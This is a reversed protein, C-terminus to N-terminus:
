GLLEDELEKAFADDSDDESTEVNDGRVRKNTDPESEDPFERKRPNAEAEGYNNSNDEVNEAEEGENDEDDSSAMFDEVEKNIEDWDMKGDNLSRMFEGGNTEFEEEAEQEEKENARQQEQRISDFTIYRKMDNEEIKILFQDEPVRKWQKLCAFIWDTYVIKTNSGKNALAQNVKRTGAGTAIVHTVTDIYDAVVVAGFSRVWQVIDAQDLNTGLPLVGSFLFVCGKFVQRKLKSMVDKIDPNKILDDRSFLDNDYEEYFESHVKRLARDLNFLEDDDDTLIHRHHQSPTHEQQGSVPGNGFSNVREIEKTKQEENEKEEEQREMEELNKQLKALPRELQQAELSASREHSQANLLETNDEGGGMELLQDVPSVSEPDKSSEDDNSGSPREESDTGKSLSSPDIYTNEDIKKRPAIVGNRQPLFSSNIDGIGVFFNYPVVKILNSSWRWVDGRDDIITVMSTDVPFLRKLSKQILSGSEDRSLIRDGFFKGDPDIIRAISKAYAKTAMTYVHMEYLSSMSDLFERLGPRLKVYYWCIASIPRATQAGSPSKVLGVIEEELSFSKVNKLAENNPNTTDKMWEGITPDVAAHIVTQDLDVVLILKRESLLRESSSKEIRQAEDLSVKLGSTDHSMSIPAREQNNFETYDQQDLLAGCLACMGGYQVSHTCPELITLITTSCFM